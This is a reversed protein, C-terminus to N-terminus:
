STSTELSAPALQAVANAPCPDTEAVTVPNVLPTSYTNRTAATFAAPVPLVDAVAVAVGYVTGPAGLAKAEVGLSWLTAKAHSAGALLPPREMVPYRMSRDTSPPALQDTTIASVALALVDAM